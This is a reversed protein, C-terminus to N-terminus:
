TRRVPRAKAGFRSPGFCFCLRRLRITAICCDPTPRPRTSTSGRATERRAARGPRSLHARERHAAPLSKILLNV